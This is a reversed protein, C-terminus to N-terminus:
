AAGRANVADRIAREGEETRGEGAAHVFAPLLANCIEDETLGLRALGYAEKVLLGHRAGARASGIASAANKLAAAIYRDTHEPARLPVYVRAHAVPQAAAVVFADLPEGDVSRFQYVAGARVCPLFGLRGADKTGMDPTVGCTGLHAVVTKWATEYTAADAPETLPLVIRCRPEAPTSNFTSHVVALHGVLLDAIRDVEGGEDVDVLLASAHVLNRKVKRDGTFKAPTWAGHEAKQTALSPRSLWTRLNWWPLRLARGVMPRRERVYVAPDEVLLVGLELDDVNM